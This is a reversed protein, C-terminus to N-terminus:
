NEVISTCSGLTLLQLLANVVFDTGFIPNNIEGLKLVFYSECEVFVPNTTLLCSHGM